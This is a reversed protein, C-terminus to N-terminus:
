EEGDDKRFIIGERRVIPAMRISDGSGTIVTQNMDDTLEELLDEMQESDLFVDSPSNGIIRISSPAGFGVFSDTNELITADIDRLFTKAYEIQEDSLVGSEFRSQMALEFAATSKAGKSPLKELSALLDEPDNRAWQNFLSQNYAHRYESPLENALRMAREAEGMKLLESGVSNFASFAHNSDRIQSLWKLAKLPDVSALRSVVAAELGMEAPQQLALEMARDSDSKVLNGLVTTLLHGQISELSPTNLVWDVAALPDTKSWSSAIANAIGNNKPRIDLAVLLRAAEAPASRAISRVAKAEALDIVNDPLSDISALLENPNNNAWVSIVSQELSRRLPGSKVSSAAAMASQPDSKAWIRVATSAVSKALPEDMSLLQSVTGSPDRRAARTVVARAVEIKRSRDNISDNIQSLVGLGIQRVWADAVQVLNEVNDISEDTEENIEFWAQKPDELQRLFSERELVEDAVSEIGVEGAIERRIEEALDFRSQLIGMLAPYKQNQDLEKARAISHDLSTQSWEGFITQILSESRHFPLTRIADLARTPDIMTLRQVIPKQFQAQLTEPSLKTSEELLNILRYEDATAVLQHLAATRAFEGKKKAIRTLESDFKDNGWSESFVSPEGSSHSRNDSPDVSTPVVTTEGSDSSIENSVWSLLLKHGIAGIAVGSILMGALFGVVPLSLFRNNAM